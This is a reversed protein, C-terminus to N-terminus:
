YVIVQAFIHVDTVTAQCALGGQIRVNPCENAGLILKEGIALPINPMITPLAATGRAPPKNTGSTGTTVIDEDFFKVVAAGANNNTIILKELIGQKNAASWPVLIIQTNINAASVNVFNEQREGGIVDNYVNSM